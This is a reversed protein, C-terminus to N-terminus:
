RNFGEKVNTQFTKQLPDLIETGGMNATMNSVKELSESL